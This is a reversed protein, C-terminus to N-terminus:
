SYKNIVLHERLSHKKGDNNKNENQKTENQKTYQLVVSCPILSWFHLYINGHFHSMKSKDFM